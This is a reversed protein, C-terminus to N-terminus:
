AVGVLREWFFSLGGPLMHQDSSPEMDREIYKLVPLCSEFTFLAPKQLRVAEKIKADVPICGVYDLSVDLFENSVKLLREFVRLGEALGQVMNVLVSFKRVRSKQSLVKILAYADTLSAPDPTLTVVVQQVLSNLYLVHNSLGPSTDVLLVDYKRPLHSVQSLLMYRDEANLNQLESIGNGGPILDVGPYVNVVTDSLSMTGSLVDYISHSLHRGFFLDINAMGLDGDLILVSKDQAALYMALQATFTTKGVGGKGSTISITKM